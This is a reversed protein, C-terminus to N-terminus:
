GVEFYHERGASPPANGREASADEAADAGIVGIDEPDFDVFLFHSLTWLHLLCQWVSGRTSTPRVPRTSRGPLSRCNLLPSDSLLGDHSAVRVPRRWPLRHVLLSTLAMSIKRRLNRHTLNFLTLLCRSFPCQVAILSIEASTRRIADERRVVVSGEVGTPMTWCGLVLQGARGSM